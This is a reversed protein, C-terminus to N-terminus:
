AFECIMGNIGSNHNNSNTKAILGDINFKIKEPQADSPINTRSSKSLDM